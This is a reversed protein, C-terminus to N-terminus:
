LVLPDLGKVGHAGWRLDIQKPKYTPFLICCQVPPHLTFPISPLHSLSTWPLSSSTFFCLLLTAADSPPPVSLSSSSNTRTDETSPSFDWHPTVAPSKLRWFRGREHNFKTSYESVWSTVQQLGKQQAPSQWTHYSKHKHIYMYTHIHSLTHKRRMATKHRLKFHLGAQNRVVWM